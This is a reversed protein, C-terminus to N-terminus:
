NGVESPNSERLTEDVCAGTYSGVKNIYAFAVIGGVKCIRRCEALVLERENPPLHYMPGFCLVVDFSNGEMESLNTADGTKAIVNKLGQALIKENFIEINEPSIDIGVYKKCKESFRMAYYGTACGLEMVTKNKNIYETILKETYYFELGMYRSQTPRSDEDGLKYKEKVLDENSSM